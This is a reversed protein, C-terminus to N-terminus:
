IQPIITANILNTYHLSPSITNVKVFLMDILWKDVPFIHHTRIEKNKLRERKIFTVVEAITFTNLHTAGGEFQVKIKWKRM